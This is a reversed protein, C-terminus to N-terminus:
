GPLGVELLQAHCRARVCTRGQLPLVAGVVMPQIGVYTRTNPGAPAPSIPLIRRKQWRIVSGSSASVVPLIDYHRVVHNMKLYYQDEVHMSPVVRAMITCRANITSQHDGRTM